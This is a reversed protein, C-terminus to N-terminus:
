EENEYGTHDLKRFALRGQMFNKSINWEDTSLSVKIPM